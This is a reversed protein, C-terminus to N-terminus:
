GCVCTRPATRPPARRSRRRKLTLDDSTGISTHLACDLCVIFLFPALPDGQLVGADIKFIDTNGEPTIVLASTNEYMVKIAAVIEPPIGYSSLIKLMKQRDISDFAKKFDIFTIVAEKKHNQLEEIIRRLALLHSTTSRGPHFGNQSPRLLSDISPRIRNLILRNYVKSAIQTLSIGRYNM